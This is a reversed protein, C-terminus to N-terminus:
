ERSSNANCPTKKYIYIYIYLIGFINLKMLEEYLIAPLEYFFPQGITAM